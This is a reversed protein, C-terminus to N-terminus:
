PRAATAASLRRGGLLLVLSGALAVQVLMASGISTRDALVGVTAPVVFFGVQTSVMAVANVPGTYSPAAEIGWTLLLPFFGSLLLGVAFTLAFFPLREVGVPTALLVALLCVLAAAAALVVDPPSTTDALLSFGLRGPVYAALYVSLALNATARPLFGSAYYPLWTFFTSEIGGVFVLAVAMGVVTRDSLLPRVDALALSREALADAPFDLRWAVLAVPLFLAGLALYAWRWTGVALAATAVFPGLTAGAAWVMTERTFIRGREEPHLHGLIPRDLGRFLGTAASQLAVFGLLAAYSPAAGHLALAVGTLAIGAVVVRRVDVRGALSGVIVVPGVFGLTAVPTLLGLQSESLGFASQFSPVLAGRAQLAAGGVGVAAFVVATWARRSRASLRTM